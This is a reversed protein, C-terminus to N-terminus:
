RSLAQVPEIRAAKLAPYLGAVLGTVTGILPASLVLFPAIVPTWGRFASVAVVVMVAGCTGLLGGASGLLGSEALFQAAIHRKRAGLARRLGIEPVREMVSVLTTNAIGIAGIVLSVGALVLFLSNVDGEVNQRLTRPDPPVIAVLRSPDQPRLQLPAQRGILQAAGPRTDILMSRQRGRFAPDADATRDPIIMSLLFDQNHRVDDIIGIVTFATDGIFVAPQNRASRIGLRSAVGIGLVAVPDRRANHGADYLRGSGVAAGAALLAGPSAAVLSVGEENDGRAQREPTRRVMVDGSGVTWFVGAARVGNLRGLRREADPPFAADGSLDGDPPPRGDQVTIETAKLADFRSSIQAGASGTVGLTAVFAGVGLLTGLATLASRARKRLIWAIAEGFLDRPGLRSAGGPERALPGAGGDPLPEAAPGAARRSM